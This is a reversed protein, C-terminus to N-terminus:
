VGSCDSLAIASFICAFYETNPHTVYGIAWLVAVQYQINIHINYLYVCMTQQEDAVNGRHPSQFIEVIGKSYAVEVVQVAGTAHLMPAVLVYYVSSAKPTRLKLARRSPSCKLHNPSHTRCQFATEYADDM